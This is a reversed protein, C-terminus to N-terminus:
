CFGQFFFKVCRKFRHFHLGAVCGCVEEDKTPDITVEERQLKQDLPSLLFRLVYFLNVQKEEKM